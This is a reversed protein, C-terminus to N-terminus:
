LGPALRVQGSEREVFERASFTRTRFLDLLFGDVQPRLVELLDLAASARYPADRHLWGIDPDLGSARLAIKCAFEALAYGYNVCAQTPTTANRPSTVSIASRREGAVLWHDPVRGADARAFT